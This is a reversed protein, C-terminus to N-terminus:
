ILKFILTETGLIWLTGFVPEKRYPELGQYLM